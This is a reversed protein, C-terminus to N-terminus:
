VEKYLSLVQFSSWIYLGIYCILYIGIVVNLPIFDDLNNTFNIEGVSLLGLMTCGGIMNCLASVMWLIIFLKSNDKIGFLLSISMAINVCSIGASTMKEIISGFFNLSAGITVVSLTLLIVAIIEVVQHLNQNSICMDLILTVLNEEVFVM